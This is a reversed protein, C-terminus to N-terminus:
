SNEIDGLRKDIQEQEYRDMYDEFPQLRDREKNIKRIHWLLWPWSSVAFAWEHAVMMRIYGNKFATYAVYGGIAQYILWVPILAVWM